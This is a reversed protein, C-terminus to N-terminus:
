IFTQKNTRKCTISSIFVAVYCGCHKSNERLEQWHSHLFLWCSGHVLCCLGKCIYAYYLAFIYMTCICTCLRHELFSACLREFISSCSCQLSVCAITMTCCDFLSDTHQVWTCTHVYKHVAHCASNLTISGFASLVM